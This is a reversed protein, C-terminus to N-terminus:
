GLQGGGATIGGTRKILNRLGACAIALMFPIIRVPTWFMNETVAGVCTALILGAYWYATLPVSSRSLLGLFDRMCVILLVLLLGVGVLGFQLMVDLYGNDVSYLPTGALVIPGPGGSTGIWFAQYGYGLWLHKLTLPLVMAWTHTRGTLTLDRGLLPLIIGLVIPIMVIGVAVCYLKFPIAERRTRAIWPGLVRVAILVATMILPTRSQSLLILGIPLIGQLAVTLLRRGSSINCFPLGAFLYFMTNGLNNKQSFVGKWEGTPHIGYRPLLIVWAISALAMIVGLSLLLRMQEPPSYYTAFFWAFLLYLFLITAKRYTVNPDQSWYTSLFALVAFSLVAKQKLMLRLTPGVYTVMLGACIVWLVVTLLLLSGSSVDSELAINPHLGQTTFLSNGCALLFLALIVWWTRVRKFLFPDQTEASTSVPAMPIASMTASM